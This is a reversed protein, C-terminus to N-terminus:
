ADERDAETRPSFEREILGYAAILARRRCLDISPPVSDNYSPGADSSSRVGYGPIDNQVFEMAMSLRRLDFRTMQVAFDMDEFYPEDEAPAAEGDGNTPREEDDSVAETM